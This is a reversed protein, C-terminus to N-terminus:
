LVVGRKGWLRYDFQPYLAQALKWKLSFDPLVKGKSEGITEQDTEVVTFKFDAYYTCIQHDNVTLTLPYQLELGEIIGAALLLKLEEYHGAELGSDFWINDVQTRKANFKNSRFWTRKM